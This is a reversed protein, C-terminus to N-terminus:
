SKNKKMRVQGDNKLKITKVNKIKSETTKATSHLNATTSSTRMTQSM